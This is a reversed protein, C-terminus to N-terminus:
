GLGRDKDVNGNDQQKCIVCSKTNTAARATAMAVFSSCPCPSVLVDNETTLFIHYYM